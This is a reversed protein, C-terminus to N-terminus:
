KKQNLVLKIKIQDIKKIFKDRIDKETREIKMVDLNNREEPDSFVLYTSEKSLNMKVEDLIKILLEPKTKGSNSRQLTDIKTIYAAASTALIHGTSTYPANKESSKYAELFCTTVGQGQCTERAIDNDSLDEKLRLIRLGDEAAIIIHHAQYPLLNLLFKTLKQAVSNQLFASYIPYLNGYRYSYKDLGRNIESSTFRLGIILVLVVTFNLLTKKPIEKNWLLPLLILISIGHLLWFTIRSLDFYWYVLDLSSVAIFFTLPLIIKLIPIEKLIKIM